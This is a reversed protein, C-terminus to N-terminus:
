EMQGAFLTFIESYFLHFYYEARFKNKRDPLNAQMKKRSLGAVFCFARKKQM